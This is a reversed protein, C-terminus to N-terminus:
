WGKPTRRSLHSVRRLLEIAGEIGSQNGVLLPAGKPGDPRRALTPTGAAEAAKQYRRKTEETIRPGFNGKVVKGM